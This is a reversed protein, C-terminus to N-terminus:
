PRCRRPASRSPSPAKRPSKKARRAYTSRASARHSARWARCPPRRQASRTSSSPPPHGHPTIKTNRFFREDHDDRHDVDHKKQEHEEHDARDVHHLRVRHLDSQRLRSRSLHLRARVDHRDRHRILAIHEIVLVFQRIFVKRVLHLSGQRTIGIRHEHTKSRRLREPAFCTEM